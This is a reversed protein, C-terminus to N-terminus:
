RGIIKKVKELLKDLSINAKIFYDEAGLAKASRVDSEEGLNSIVVVPINKTLEDAKLLKLVEFGDLGPLILDLLIIAPKFQTTKAQVDLGNVVNMTEFEERGFKDLLVQALLADDEVILVKKKNKQKFGFLPM